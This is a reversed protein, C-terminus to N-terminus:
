LSRSAKAFNAAIIPGYLLRGVAAGALGLFPILVAAAALSALGGAINMVSVFRVKGLGLLTYYPVVNVSLLGFAVALIALVYGSQEAFRTGMWIRLFASGFLVIPLSLAIAGLLSALLALRYIRKPSTRDGAEHRSSIQPFLFNMGAAIVGHIPQTLQVCISYYAVPVPGLFAAVLFRDAQNFMVSAMGQAWSYFAFGTVERYTARAFHPWFTIGPILGRIVLAQIVVGFGISIATAWILAELGYNLMVLSVASGVSLVRVLASVAVAPPYREYARLTGVFVSDISRLLLIFGSVQVVRTAVGFYQPSVRFLYKVLIPACAFVIIAAVVGLLISLTLTARVIRAAQDFDNRGRCASVHRITADGLSASFMGMTGAVANALMWIGYQEAGLRSVLFPASALVLLPQVLYDAVGFTGNKASQRFVWSHRYSAVRRFSGLWSIEKTAM